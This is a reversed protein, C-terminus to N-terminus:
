RYQLIMNSTTAMEFTVVSFLVTLTSLGTYNILITATHRYVVQYLKGNLRSLLSIRFAKKVRRNKLSLIFLTLVLRDFRYFLNLISRTDIPRAM